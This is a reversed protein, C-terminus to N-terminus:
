CSRSNRLSNFSIINVCRRCRKSLSLLAEPQLAKTVLWLGILYSKVCKVTFGVAEPTQDLM